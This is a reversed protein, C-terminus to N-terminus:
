CTSQLIYGSVLREWPTALVKIFLESEVLSVLFLPRGLLWSSIWSWLRQSWWFVFHPVSNGDKGDGIKEPNTISLILLIGLPHISHILTNVPLFNTRVGTLKLNLSDLPEHNGPVQFWTLLWQFYKDFLAWMMEINDSFGPSAGPWRYSSPSLPSIRSDYSMPGSMKPHSTCPQALPGVLGVTAKQYITDTGHYSSRFKWLRQWKLLM